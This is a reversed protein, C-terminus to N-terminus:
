PVKILSINIKAKSPNVAVRHGLVALFFTLTHLMYMCAYMCVYMCVGCIRDIKDAVKYANLIFAHVCMCVYMCVNM